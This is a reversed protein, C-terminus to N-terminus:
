NRYLYAMVLVVTASWAIWHTYVPWMPLGRTRALRTYARIWALQSRRPRPFYQQLGEGTRRLEARAGVYMWSDSLFAVALFLGLLMTLM